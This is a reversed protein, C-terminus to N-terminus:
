KVLALYETYQFPLKVVMSLLVCLANRKDLPMKAPTERDIHAIARMGMIVGVILRM